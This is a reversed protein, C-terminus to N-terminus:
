FKHNLGVAFMSGKAVTTGSNKTKNASVGGYAMTRKSLSYKAAVGFGNRKDNGAAANDKSSAIGASLTLASSLPFDAGIQFNNTKMTGLKSQGFGAMLRAVGLDYSGNLVTQKLDAPAAFDARVEYGFNASLPGNAYSLSFDMQDNKAGAVEDLAYSFGGSFGGFDPSVYKIANKPKGRYGGGFPGAGWEVSDVGNAAALGSDFGSTAAGAVDDMASAVNGFTVTGFGGSLGVFTQRNPGGSGSGNSADFGSEIGFVAKLGGGLDEQGKLGWRSGNVAGSGMQTSKTKVGTWTTGVWSYNTTSTQGVWLDVIGYLTVSSQAQAAGAVAGLVALAILSKKM